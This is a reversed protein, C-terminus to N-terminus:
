TRILLKFIDLNLYLSHIPRLSKFAVLKKMSTRKYKEHILNMKMTDKM